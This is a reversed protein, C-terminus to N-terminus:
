GGCRKAGVKDLVEGLDFAAVNGDDHVAYFAGHPFGPMPTRTLWVGDTNLVRPSGFSGLYELSRRDFLHFFNEQKGQDTTFWWGSGDECAYLAIGEPQFHFIGAGLRRGAYRGDFGYVKLNRQRYQEEDALLLRGHAPDGWVSEVINLVGPGSTAGFSKELVATLGEAGRRLRYQKVRQGLEAAPPVQDDATEYNDTVFVRYDGEELRQAWLGYPKRLASEGEAGFVLLAKFDPLGLVQVRRNDREVVLALGDIVFVGNPREFQGPGTGSSGVKRLLKGSAAEYVLLHDTHKATALLWHEGGPAHWVAVSDVNDAPDRVTLFREGIEVLGAVTPLPPDAPEATAAAAAPAVAPAAPEAPAPPRGCASLVLGVVAPLAAPFVRYPNM